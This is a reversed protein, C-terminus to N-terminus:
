DPTKEKRETMCYVGIMAALMICLLAHMLPKM